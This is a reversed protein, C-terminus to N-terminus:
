DHVRAAQEEDHHNNSNAHVCPAAAQGCEPFVGISLSLSDEFARAMHWYGKPVYLWDGPVLRCAMLPSTENQYERFDSQFGRRPPPSVTNRRLYYEKDGATQIVFVDEADYHWGFGHTEAPTAFLILRQEGPLDRAFERALTELPQSVREPARIAIGLGVRFLAQLEAVSRPAPMDFQRSSGIVLVDSPGARLVEDLLTWGCASAVECAAGARAFPAHGLHEALFTTVAIPKLWHGLSDM